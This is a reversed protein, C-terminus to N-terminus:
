ALILSLIGLGEALAMAIIAQVLIKGSAGPNRGVAEAAKNGILGVGIAAGLLGLASTINGTIGSTTVQAIIDHM